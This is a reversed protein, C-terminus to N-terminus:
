SRVMENRIAYHVLDTVSHLNLKLMINARHTEATKVSIGLTQAVEKNTKGEALLQTIERERPTLLGRSRRRSARAQEQAVAECVRSTFYPKHRRVADVAALLDEDADDKVLYGQAGAALAERALKESSHASLILVETQPSVRRIQRTTEIGNLGPMGVDVIAVDPEFRRAKEVADRGDTAEACVKWGRKSRLIAKLGRRVVNHDDAILIRLPM